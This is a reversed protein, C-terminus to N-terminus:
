EPENSRINLFGFAWRAQAKNKGAAPRDAWQQASIIVSKDDVPTGKSNTLVLRVRQGDRSFQARIKRGEYQETWDYMGQEWSLVEEMFEGHAIFLPTVYEFGNITM